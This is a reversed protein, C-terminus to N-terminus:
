DGHAQEWADLQERTVGLGGSPRGISKLPETTIGLRTLTRCIFARAALEERLCPHSRLGSRGRLVVGERERAARLEGVLDAAEAAQMLMEIGGCDEINFERQIRDWLARGLKGLKRPPQPGSSSSRVVSLKPKEPM